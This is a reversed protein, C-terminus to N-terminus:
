VSFGWNPRRSPHGDFFNKETNKAEGVAYPGWTTPVFFNCLFKAINDRVDMVLLSISLYFLLYSTVSPTVSALFSGDGDIVRQQPNMRHGSEALRGHRIRKPRPHGVNRRSQYAEEHLRLRRAVQWIRGAASAARAHGHV